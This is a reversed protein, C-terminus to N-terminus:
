EDHQNSKMQFKNIYIDAVLKQRMFFKNWRAYNKKDNPICALTNEHLIALNNKKIFSNNNKM